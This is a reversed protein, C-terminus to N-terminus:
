CSLNQYKWVRHMVGLLGQMRAKCGSPEPLLAEGGALGGPEGSFSPKRDWPIQARFQSESSLVWKHSSALTHSLAVRV